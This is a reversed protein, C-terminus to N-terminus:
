ENKIFRVSDVAGNTSNSSQYVRMTLNNPVGNIDTTIQFDSFPNQEPSSSNFEGIKDQGKFDMRSSRGTNKDSTLKSNNQNKLRTASSIKSSPITGLIDFLETNYDLELVCDFCENKLKSQNQSDGDPGNLSVGNSWEHKGKMEKEVGVIFDVINQFFRKFANPKKTVIVVEQLLHRHPIINLEIKTQDMPLVGPPETDLNGDPDIRMIPNYSVFNYPTLWSRESALPDVGLWISWKPNYYRAGYYYNGTEEDLEKANFRFSTSYGGTNAHQTILSEGFPTYYFYQYPYGGADTIYETHGLYDSHYFYLEEFHPCIYGWELMQAWTDENRCLCQLQSLTYHDYIVIPESDDTLNLSEPDIEMSFDECPYWSRPAAQPLGPAALQGANFTPIGPMAFRNLNESLDSLVVNNVHPGSSGAQKFQEPGMPEEPESPLEDGLIHYNFKSAIRQSGMYYHKSAEEQNRYHKVVYHPGVYVTYPMLQYSTGCIAQGNNAVTTPYFYNGSSLRLIM